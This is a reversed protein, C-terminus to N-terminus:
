GSRGDAIYYTTGREPWNKPHWAVGYVWPLFLRISARQYSDSALPNAAADASPEAFLRNATRRVFAPPRKMTLNVANPAMALRLAAMDPRQASVFLLPRTLRSRSSHLSRARLTENAVRLPPAGFKHRCRSAERAVARRATSGGKFTCGFLCQECLLPVRKRRDGNDQACAM